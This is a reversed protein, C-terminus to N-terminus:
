RKPLQNKIVFGAGAGVLGAALDILYFKAPRRKGIGISITAGAFIAQQTYQGRRTDNKMAGGILCLMGPLIARGAEYQANYKPKEVFTGRIPEYYQATAFLPFLLIVIAHKM